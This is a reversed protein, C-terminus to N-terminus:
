DKIQELISIIKWLSTRIYSPITQDQLVEEIRSICASAKIGYSPIKPDNLYNIIDKCTERVHRPSSPEKLLLNALDKVIKIKEEQTSM